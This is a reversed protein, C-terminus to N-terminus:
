EWCKMSEIILEMPMLQRLLSPFSFLETYIGRTFPAESLNLCIPFRFLMLAIKLVLCVSLLEGM